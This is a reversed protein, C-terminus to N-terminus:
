RCASIATITERGIERRQSSTDRFGVEGLTAIVEDIQADTLGYRSPELVGADDRRM